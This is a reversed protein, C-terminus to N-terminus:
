KELTVADHMHWNQGEGKNQNKNEGFCESSEAVFGGLNGGLDMELAYHTRTEGAYMSCRLSQGNSFHCKVQTM